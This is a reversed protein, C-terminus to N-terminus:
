LITRGFIFVSEGLRYYDAIRGEQQFGAQEAAFQAAKECDSLFIVAKASGTRMRSIVECMYSFLRALNYLDGNLLPHRFKWLTHGNGSGRGYISLHAAATVRGDVTMVYWGQGTTAPNVSLESVYNAASAAGFISHPFPYDQALQIVQPLFASGAPECSLRKETIM